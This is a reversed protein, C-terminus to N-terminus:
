FYCLFDGFINIGGLFYEYQIHQPCCMNQMADPVSILDGELLSSVFNLAHEAADKTTEERPKFGGLIIVVDERQTNAKRDGSWPDQSCLWCAPLAFIMQGKSIYM